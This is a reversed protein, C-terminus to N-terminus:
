NGEGDTAAEDADTAADTGADSTSDTGTGATSGEAAATLSKITGDSQATPKPADPDFRLSFAGSDIHLLVQTVYADGARTVSGPIADVFGPLKVMARLWDPISPLTDTTATFTLAAVRTGQLPADSQSFAAMPTGSDISVTDLTVGAPLTQQLLVLYDRWAIETSAGVEQGAMITAITDKVERVEGFQSQEAILQQQTQQALGLQVQAVSAVGFTAVCGAAVGVAVLLVGARLARRTKLQKRKLIIEPPLLNARPQGGVTLPFKGIPRTRAAGAGRGGRRSEGSPPAQEPARTPIDVTM